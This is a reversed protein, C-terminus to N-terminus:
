PRRTRRRGLVPLLLVAWWVATGSGSDCAGGSLFQVPADVTGDCDNDIGDTEERLDPAAMPEADDCDGECTTYGDEDADRENEDADDVPDQEEVDPGYDVNPAEEESQDMEQNEPQVEVNAPQSGQMLQSGEGNPDDDEESEANM